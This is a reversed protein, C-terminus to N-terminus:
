DPVSIRRMARGARAHQASVTVVSGPRARVVWTATARDAADDQRLGAWGYPAGAHRSRGALQGLGQRPAGSALEAGDPLDIEAIVERVAGLEAGRATIHTPLYGANGVRLTVRYLGAGLADARADLLALEPLVLAQFVLWAPVRAIEAELLPPPPNSFFWLANFGGLEVPGLQPHEFGYWDVYGWPEPLTDAFALLRADDAPPHDRGWALYDTLEIGAARQPSWLELTWGLCGLHEYLWDDFAGSIGLTGPERFAHYASAVPYGSLRTADQGLRTYLALDGAPLEDDPRTSSPRLLVGSYSHLAVGAGINPHATIFDVVTRVEPESTPYPGAGPQAGHPRWGAPFNRNFDLGAAPAAGPGHDPADAPALSETLLRYYVGDTEAPGRATMLRPDDASVKWSGLPDPVRMLLIRGDGDLDQPVAGAPLPDAHPFARPGSRVLRPCADLAAQAGDPSVRPCVYLTRTDLTRTIDADQEYGALLHEIFYLCAMSGVLEAGHINGDVWLAPRADAPLAGASAALTVLWIPRGEHSAGIADLRMLRPHEGALARLRLSLEVHDLYRDFGPM